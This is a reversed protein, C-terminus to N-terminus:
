RDLGQKYKNDSDGDSHSKEIEAAKQMGNEKFSVVKLGHLFNDSEAFPPPGLTGGRCLTVGRGLTKKQSESISDDLTSNSPSLTNRPRSVTLALHPRPPTNISLSLVFTELCVDAYTLICM